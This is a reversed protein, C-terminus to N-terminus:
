CFHVQQYYKIKASKLELKKWVLINVYSSKGDKILMLSKQFFLIMVYAPLYPLHIIILISLFSIANM